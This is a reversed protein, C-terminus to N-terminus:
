KYKRAGNDIKTSFRSSDRGTAYYRGEGMIRNEGIINERKVNKCIKM